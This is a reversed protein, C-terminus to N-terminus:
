DEEAMEWEEDPYLERNYELDQAAREESVGQVGVEGNNNFTFWKKDM